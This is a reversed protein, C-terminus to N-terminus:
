CADLHVMTTTRDRNTVVVVRRGDPMTYASQLNFRDRLGLENVSRVPESVDGWDGRQHRALLADLSTQNAELAATAAPTIVLEGIDFKGASMTILDQAILNKHM